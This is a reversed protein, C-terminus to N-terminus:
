GKRRAFYLENRLLFSIWQGDPSVLSGGLDLPARTVLELTHSMATYKWLSQNLRHGLDIVVVDGRENVDIYQLSFPDKSSQQVTFVEEWAHNTGDLKFRCVRGGVTLYKDGHDGAKSCSAYAYQGKPDIKFLPRYIQYPPQELKVQQVVRNELDRLLYGHKLETGDVLRLPPEPNPIRKEQGQRDKVMITEYWKYEVLRYKYGGYGSEMWTDVCLTRFGAKVYNIGCDPYAEYIGTGRFGQDEIPGARRYKGIVYRGGINVSGARVEALLEPQAVLKLGYIQQTTSKDGQVSFVVIQEQCTVNYINKQQGPDIPSLDIRRLDKPKNPDLYYLGEMEHGAASQQGKIV